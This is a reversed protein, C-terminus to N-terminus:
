EKPEACVDETLCYTPLWGARLKGDVLKIPTVRAYGAQCQYVYLPDGYYYTNDLGDSMHCNASVVHHTPLWTAVEMDKQVNSAVDLLVCAMLFLPLIALCMFLVSKKKM